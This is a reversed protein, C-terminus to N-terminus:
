FGGGYGAFHHLKERFEMFNRTKRVFFFVQRNHLCFAIEIAPDSGRRRVPLPSCIWPLLSSTRNNLEFLSRSIQLSRRVGPVVPHLFFLSFSHIMQITQFFEVMSSLLLGETTFHAVEKRYAISDPIRDPVPVM